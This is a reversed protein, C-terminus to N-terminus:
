SSPHSRLRLTCGPATKVNEIRFDYDKIETGSEALEPFVGKDELERRFVIEHGHVVARGSLDPVLKPTCVFKIDLDPGVVEHDIVVCNHNYQTTEIVKSGTNRLSHEILLEPKGKVLRVTKRYLYAYGDDARLQHSFEIRDKHRRIRWKGPDVIDYSDYRRYAREEPKRVTGIGIRVFADGPKLKKTVWGAIM